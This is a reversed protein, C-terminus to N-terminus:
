EEEKVASMKPLTDSQEHVEAWPCERILDYYQHLSAVLRDRVENEPMTKVSVFRVKLKPRQDFKASLSVEEVLGILVGGVSIRVEGSETIDVRLDQM